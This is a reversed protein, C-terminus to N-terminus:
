IEPFTRMAITIREAGAAAYDPRTTNIARESMPMNLAQMYAM